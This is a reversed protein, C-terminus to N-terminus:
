WNQHHEEAKWLLIKKPVFEHVSKISSSASQTQFLSRSCAPSPINRCKILLEESILPEQCKWHQLCNEWCFSVKVEGAYLLIFMVEKVAQLCWTHFDKGEHTYSPLNIPSFENLFKSSYVSFLSPPKLIDLFHKEKETAVLQIVSFWHNYMFELIVLPLTGLFMCKDLKVMSYTWFYSKAKMWEKIENVWKMLEERRWLFFTFKLVTKINLHVQIGKWLATCKIEQYTIVPSSFDSSSSAAWTM